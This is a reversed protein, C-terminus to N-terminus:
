FLERYLINKFENNNELYNKISIFDISLQEIVNYDIYYTQDIKNYTINIFLASEENRKKDEIIFRCNISREKDNDYKLLIYDKDIYIRYKNDEYLLRLYNEMYKDGKINILNSNSIILEIINYIYRKFILRNFDPRM